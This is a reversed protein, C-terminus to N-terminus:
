LELGVIHVLNRGMCGRLLSYGGRTFKSKSLQKGGGGRGCTIKSSSWSSFSTTDRFTTALQVDYRTAVHSQACTFLYKTTISGAPHGCSRM